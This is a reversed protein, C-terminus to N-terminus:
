ALAAPVNFPSAHGCNKLLHAASVLAFGGAAAAAGGGAGTGTTAAGGGGAGTTAAGGGGAGAGTTAAGATVGGGTLGSLFGAVFGTAGAASAAGLLATKGVAM